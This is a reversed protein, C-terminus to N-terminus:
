EHRLAGAPDLALVRRSPLYGAMLAVAGLLVPVITFTFADTPEVGFLMTAMLRTLAWAAALGAAIGLSALLAAQGVVLRTVNAPPAGLALRIGLENTRQSVDYSIVGYVGVAALVFAIQAFIALLVTNFRAPAVVRDVVSAMPRPDAVPQDPDLQHIARGAAPAVARPPLTTRVVLSMSRFANQAYPGYITLWDDGEIREPKVNGVVGVIMALRGGPDLVLKSGVAGGRPWFRRALTQSVVLALGARATDAATFDRGELLPLGMTRFYGPTVARVLAMPREDPAPRGEVAFTTGFGFGALPLTDVAAVARVGPLAAIREEVQDLFAIRREAATNRVGALPLRLTLLGSPQFGLNEARLRAFSRILLTAGILVLVALAVESVVLGQRLLRGSRATTRGRGGEILTANLQAGSGQVAPALGFLVGTAASVGLAFLFLRGDLRAEALRPIGAPGAGLRALLAVGTWALLLGLAGGALALLLSESLLQLVIRGRTAGLALRIAIERRRTHGRALLLNAVNVCAMLLLFGVAGMLVMLPQEAGGVVEERLPFLSPRWGRNFAPDARELRDGITDLEARAQEITAHPRLRAIVTLSRSHTARTDGPDLGLPIWVDAATQLVRFGPPLVGAVTYGHDSLRVSKGAISRDAGFRRQWLDYSLLAASANGPQDEDPRFLRGVVPQVGLLPLLGASIREASLEEPDIHGNPGETLNVHVDQFAAMTELSRSERRWELFNDAAVMLKFKNQAPNKEWIVLLREPHPFPLPKLLVADVVSFIASAAGMGLALAALAVVTFGPSHLLLRVGHRVDRGVPLM